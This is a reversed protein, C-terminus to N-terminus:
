QAMLQNGDCGLTLMTWLALRGKLAVNYLDAADSCTSLGAGMARVLPARLLAVVAADDGETFLTEDHAFARTM